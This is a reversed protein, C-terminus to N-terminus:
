ALSLGTLEESVEWLKQAAATDKARKSTGVVVPHGAIGLFGRPGYYANTEAEPDLAARLTPLAGTPVDQGFIGNLFMFTKSHRQLDTATWGPHASLAKMGHSQLKDSLIRTFYLNAIKSDGYARPPNYKRKEWNLDGFDIKGNYHATSSVTVVRASAGKKLLPMLRLTLAFHGLHNTGFQLEFGDKTKGYPPIMVGANNILLDLQTYDQALDQAFAEVSSLDALDLHRVELAAKPHSQLIAGAAVEGKDVSRVALIVKAGLSALARATEKGLGTNAGTVLAIRGTQDPANALTWKTKPM